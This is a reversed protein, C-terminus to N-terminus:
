TGNTLEWGQNFRLVIKKRLDKVENEYEIYSDWRKNPMYKDLIDQAFRRVLEDDVLFFDM